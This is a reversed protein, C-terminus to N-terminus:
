ARGIATGDIEMGLDNEASIRIADFEEVGDREWQVDLRGYYVAEAADEPDDAEVEATYVVYADVRKILRIKPM